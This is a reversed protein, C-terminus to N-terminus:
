GIEVDNLLDGLRLPGRSQPPRRPQTLPLLQWVGDPHGPSWPRHAVLGLSLLRALADDLQTRTLALGRAMQERTYFSAGRQDAALALHVLVSVAEPGLRTLWGRHLLNADLWGFPPRPRRIQEPHPPQPRESM